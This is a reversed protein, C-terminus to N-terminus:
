IDFGYRFRYRNLMMRNYAYAIIGLSRKWRSYHAVKRMYYTFRFGPEHMYASVFAPMDARGRYRYVDAQLTKWLGSALGAGGIVRLLNLIPPADRRLVAAFRMSSM